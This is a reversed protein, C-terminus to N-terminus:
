WSYHAKVGTKGPYMTCTGSSDFSAKMFTKRGQWAPENRIEMLIEQFGIQGYQLYFHCSRTQDYVLIHDRDGLGQTKVVLKKDYDM